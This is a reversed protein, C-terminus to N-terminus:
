RKGMPRDGLYGDWRQVFADNLQSFRCRAAAIVAPEVVKSGGKWGPPAAECAM